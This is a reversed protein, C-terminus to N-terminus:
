CGAAAAPPRRPCPVLWAPSTASLRRTTARAPATRTSGSCREARNHRQKPGAEARPKAGPSPPAKRRHQPATRRTPQSRAAALGQPLM